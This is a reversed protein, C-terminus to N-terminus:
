GGNGLVLAIADTLANAVHLPVQGRLANVVAAPPRETVVDASSCAAKARILASRLIAFGKRSILSFIALSNWIVRGAILTFRISSRVAHRSRVVEWTIGSM